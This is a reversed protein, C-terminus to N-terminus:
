LRFADRIWELKLLGDSQPELAVVDFRAPYRGLERHTTLLHRAAITLRQQKRRDVSAAAGGYRLDSRLRVEVLVLATGDIMVLDIEGGRCHYNRHLLKLGRQQLHELAAQEAADGAEKRLTAM